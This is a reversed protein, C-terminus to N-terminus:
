VGTRSSEDPSTIIQAHFCVNPNHWLAGYEIRLALSDLV